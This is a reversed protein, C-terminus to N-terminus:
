FEFSVLLFLVGVLVWGESVLVAVYVGVRLVLMILVGLDVYNFGM